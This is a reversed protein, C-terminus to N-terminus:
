PSIGDKLYKRLFPEGGSLNVEMVACRNLEEFFRLWEEKPLDLEVDGASTFHSCYECRLNCRTTIELDMSKPTRMVPM